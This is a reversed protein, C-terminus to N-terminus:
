LERITIFLLIFLQFIILLSIEASEMTQGSFYMVSGFIFASILISTIHYIRDTFYNRELTKSKQINFFRYLFIFGSRTNMFPPICLLLLLISVVQVWLISEFNRLTIKYLRLISITFFSFAFGLLYLSTRKIITQMSFTYWFFLWTSVQSQKVVAGGAPFEGMVHATCRKSKRKTVELFHEFPRRIRVFAIQIAKESPANFTFVVCM